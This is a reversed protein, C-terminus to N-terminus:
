WALTVAAAVVVVVLPHRLTSGDKATTPAVPMPGNGSPSSATIHSSM